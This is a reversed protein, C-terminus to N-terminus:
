YRINTRLYPKLKVLDKKYIMKGINTVVKGDNYMVLDCDYYTNKSSKSNIYLYMNDYIFDPVYDFLKLFENFVAKNVKYYVRLLLM